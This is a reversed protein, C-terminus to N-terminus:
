PFHVQPFVCVCVLFHSDISHNTIWWIVLQGSSAHKYDAHMRFTSWSLQVHLEKQLSETGLRLDKSGAAALSWGGTKDSCLIDM